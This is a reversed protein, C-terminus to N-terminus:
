MCLFRNQSVRDTITVILLNINFKPVQMEEFLHDLLLGDMGLGNTIMCKGPTYYVGQILTDGQWSPNKETKTYNIRLHFTRWIHKLHHDYISVKFM